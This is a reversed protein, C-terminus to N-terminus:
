RTSPLRDGRPPSLSVVSLTAARDGPGGGTGGSPSPTHTPAIAQILPTLIMAPMHFHTQDTSVSLAKRPRGGNSLAISGDNCYEFADNAASFQQYATSRHLKGSVNRWIADPMWRHLRPLDIAATSQIYGEFPLDPL